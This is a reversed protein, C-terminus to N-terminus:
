WLHHFCCVPVWLFFVETSISFNLFKLLGWTFTLTLVPINTHARRQCKVELSVPWPWLVALWQCGHSATCPDAMACANRPPTGIQEPGHNTATFVVWFGDFVCHLCVSIMRRWDFITSYFSVAFRTIRGGVGRFWGFFQLCILFM